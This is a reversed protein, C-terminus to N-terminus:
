VSFSIVHDGSREPMAEHFFRSAVLLFVLDVEDPGRACRGGDGDLAFPAGGCAVGLIEVREGVEVRGGVAPNEGGVAGGGDGAGVLFFGIGFGAEVGERLEDRFM